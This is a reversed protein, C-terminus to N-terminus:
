LEHGAAVEHDKPNPTLGAWVTAEVGQDRLHGLLEDVWGAEILGPDTVLMPRVGGLRVAAHAAEVLSGEGFVIEPAHFKVLAPGSAPHDDRPTASARPHTTNQHGPMVVA